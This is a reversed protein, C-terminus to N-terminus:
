GQQASLRSVNIHMYDGAPIHEYRCCDSFIFAVDRCSGAAAGPISLCCTLYLKLVVKTQWWPKMNLLFLALLFFFINIAQLHVKLLSLISNGTKSVNNHIQTQNNLNKLKKLESLNGWMQKQVNRTFSIESTLRVLRTLYLSLFYKRFSDKEHAKWSSCKVNLVLLEKPRRCSFTTCKEMQMYLPFPLDLWELYM